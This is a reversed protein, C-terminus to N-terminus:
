SSASEIKLVRGELIHNPKQAMNLGEHTSFTVFGYGKSMGNNKDFIVNASSIHGYKSFYMKLENNGITWPLNGVFMKQIQKFVIGAVRESM